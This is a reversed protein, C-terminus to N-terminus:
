HNAGLERLTENLDAGDSRNIDSSDIVRVNSKGNTVPGSRQVDQPLYSGTLQRYTQTGEGTTQTKNSDHVCGSGLFGAATVAVACLQYLNPKMNSNLNLFYHQRSVERSTVPKVWRVSERM